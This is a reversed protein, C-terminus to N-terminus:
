IINRSKLKKLFTGKKGGGLKESVDFCLIKLCSEFEENSERSTCTESQNMFMAAENGENMDILINRIIKVYEKRKGFKNENNYLRTFWKYDTDSGKNDNQITIKDYDIEEEEKKKKQDVGYNKNDKMEVDKNSIPGNQILPIEQKKYDSMRGQKPHLGLLGLLLVTIITM